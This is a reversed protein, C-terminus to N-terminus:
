LERFAKRRTFELCAIALRLKSLQTWPFMWRKLTWDKIGEWHVLELETLHPAIEFAMPDKEAKFETVTVKLSELIQVEGRREGLGNLASRTGIWLEAKKRRNSCSLLMTGITSFGPTSARVFITLPHQKSRKLYFATRRNMEAVYSVSPSPEKSEPDELSLSSWLAPHSLFASRWHTCIQGVAWPFEDSHASNMLDHLAIPKDCLLLFIECLIEVPARSAVGMKVSHSQAGRTAFLLRSM